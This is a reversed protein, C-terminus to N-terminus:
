IKLRGQIGDDEEYDTLASAAIKLLTVLKNNKTDWYYADQPEVKLLMLDPDDKGDFWAKIMPHWLENIKDQDRSIYAKGYVSLFETNGPHSYM